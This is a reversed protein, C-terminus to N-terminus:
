NSFSVLPGSTRLGIIWNAVEELPIDEMEIDLDAEHDMSNPNSDEMMSHMHDGNVSAVVHQLAPIPQMASQVSNPFDAVLHLNGAAPASM